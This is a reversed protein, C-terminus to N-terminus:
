LSDRVDVYFCNSTNTSYLDTIRVTGDEALRVCNIWRPDIMHREAASLSLSGGQDGPGAMLQFGISAPASAPVGNRGGIAAVHFPKWVTHLIEHAMLRTLDLDPIINGPNWYHVYVGSRGADFMKESGRRGFEPRTSNYGTFAVGSRVVSRGARFGPGRMRRVVFVIKDVYGDDDADFDSLDVRPDDDIINLIEPTLLGVNVGGAGYDSESGSTVIVDPFVSGFLTLQGNSQQYFFDTLSKEDFPPTAHESLVYDAFDPLQDPQRWQNDRQICGTPEQNDDSFRIFVVLAKLKDASFAAPSAENQVKAWVPNSVDPSGLHAILGATLCSITNRILATRRLM